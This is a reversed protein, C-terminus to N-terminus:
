CNVISRIVYCRIKDTNFYKDAIELVKQTEKVDFAWGKNHAIWKVNCNEKLDDKFKANYETMIMYGDTESHKINVEIM